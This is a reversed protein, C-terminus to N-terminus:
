RGSAVRFTARADATAHVVLSERLAVVQLLQSSLVEGEVRVEDSLDRNLGRFLQEQAASMITEVPIRARDRLFVVLEDHALWALGGVLLNRTAVDFTLDPVHVEGADHDLEPTGVLFLTGSATGGFTVELALQGGGIGRFALDHIRVLGGSLRVEREGLERMLRAGAEPYHLRAELYIEASDPVEGEQLPPLETFVSDPRPGLSIVPRALMGVEITLVTGEGFVRGRTVAEPRVQLWVDETLEVPEELTHWVGLLRSRVDVGAVQRNIDERRSELASRVGGLATGTVDIGLPTIRCRDVDEDSVAEVLDVQVESRLVWDADLTLRSSLEIRARPRRADSELGCSASVAPLIPPDYWARGSYHLTAGIRATDGFIRAEFPSRDVLYAVEVRDNGPHDVREELDGFTQPVAGELDLLISSLDYEVPAALRAAPLDPVEVDDAVSAPAPADVRLSSDRSVIWWLLIGSVVTAVLLLPRV